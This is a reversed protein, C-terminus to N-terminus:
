HNQNVCTLCRTQSSPIGGRRKPSGRSWNQGNMQNVHHIPCHSRSKRGRGVQKLYLSPLPCPILYCHSGCRRWHHQRPRSLPALDWEKEGSVFSCRWKEMTPTPSMLLSKPTVWGVPLPLTFKLPCQVSGQSAGSHCERGVRWVGGEISGLWSWGHGNQSQGLRGKCEREGWMSWLDISRCLANPLLGAIAMQPRVVWLHPRAEQGRGRRSYDTSYAPSLWVMYHRMWHAWFSWPQAPASQVPALWWM